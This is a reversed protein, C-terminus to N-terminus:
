ATVDSAAKEMASTPSLKADDAILPLDDHCARRRKPRSESLAFLGVTTRLSLEREIHNNKESIWEIM